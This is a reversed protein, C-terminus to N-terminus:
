HGNSLDGYPWPKEYGREGVDYNESQGPNTYNNSGSASAHDASGSTEASGSPGACGSLLLLLGLGPLLPILKFRKPM